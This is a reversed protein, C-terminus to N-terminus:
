SALIQNKQDENLKMDCRQQESSPAANYLYSVSALLEAKSVPHAYRQVVSLDIRRSPNFPPDSTVGCPQSTCRRIRSFISGSTRKPVTSAAAPANLLDPLNVAKDIALPLGRHRGVIMLIIILFKSFSAFQTSLSTNGDEVGLSLGVTGYASIAEFIISFITLRGGPKFRSDEIVSILFTVLFLWFVDKLLVVYIHNLIARSEVATADDDLHNKDGCNPAANQATLVAAARTVDAAKEDHTVPPIQVSSAHPLLESSKLENHHNFFRMSAAICKQECPKGQDCVCQIPFDINIHSPRKQKQLDCPPARRVVVRKLSAVARKCQASVIHFFMSTRSSAVTSTLSGTSLTKLDNRTSSASTSLRSRARLERLAPPTVAISTSRVAIIFPYPAVYMLCAWLLQMAQSAQYIDISSFGATRTSVNQFWGALLKAGTSLTILYSKRFDLLLFVVYQFLLIGSAVALLWWTQPGAFMHTFCRRPNDLLYQTATMSPPTLVTATSQKAEAADVDATSATKWLLNRCRRRRSSSYLVWVVARMAIPYFTNGLLILLSLPLLVGPDAAFPIMNRSHLGFGCNGFASVTHFFGFFWPSVNLADEPVRGTADASAGGSPKVGHLVTYAVTGPISAYGSLFLAPILQLLLYYWFVCKLLLTLAQYEVVEKELLAHASLDPRQDDQLAALANQARTRYFHRRVLLPAGSLLVNSGLLITAFIVLQTSQTCKSLDVTALGTMSCASATLFLADIFAVSRNESIYIIVAGILALCCFYTFHFIFYSGHRAVTRHLWTLEELLAVGNENFWHANGTLSAKTLSESSQAERKAQEDEEEAAEEITPCIMDLRPPKLSPAEASGGQALEDLHLVCGPPVGEGQEELHHRQWWLAAAQLGEFDPMTVARFGLPPLCDQKPPESAPSSTLAPRNPMM